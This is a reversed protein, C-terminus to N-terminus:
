KKKQKLMCEKSWLVKAPWTYAMFATGTLIQLSQLPRSLSADTYKKNTFNIKDGIAVTWEAENNELRISDAYTQLPLLSINKKHDGTATHVLITDDIKQVPCFNIKIGDM